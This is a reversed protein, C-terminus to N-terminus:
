IGSSYAEAFDLFLILAKATERGSNQCYHALRGDFRL